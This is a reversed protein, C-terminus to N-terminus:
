QAHIASHAQHEDKRAVYIDYQKHDEEQPLMEMDGGLHRPAHSHIRTRFRIGHSSLKNAVRIYEEHGFATHILCKYKSLITLFFDM